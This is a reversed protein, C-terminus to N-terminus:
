ECSTIHRHIEFIVHMKKKVKVCIISTFKINLKAEQKPALCVSYYTAHTMKLSLIRSLSIIREKRWLM